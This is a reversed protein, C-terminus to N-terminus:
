TSAAIIWSHTAMWGGKSRTIRQSSEYESLVWLSKICIAAIPLHRHNPIELLIALRLLCYDSYWLSTIYRPSRGYWWTLRFNLLTGQSFSKELSCCSLINLYLSSKVCGNRRVLACWCRIRLIIWRRIRNLRSVVQRRLWYREQVRFHKLKSAWGM